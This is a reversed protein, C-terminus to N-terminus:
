DGYPTSDHALGRIMEDWTPVRWGTRALFRSADLSRDCVLGDDKTLTVGWGLANNVRRLLEFKDIPESAVHWVGHLDPQQELLWAVLEAVSVTTFGSYIARTFGKATRGRQTRFWELLSAGPALERGIISTRLTLCGPGEVEGVLKTRGYLDEPDPVDNESYMGKRGSFVCDSSFHVLRAGTARCLEALRHPFLANVFIAPVAATAEPKQKTIGLCNLAVEPRADAFARVVSDPDEAHVGGVLRAGGFVPDYAAQTRWAAPDGRLTATVDHSRALCQVLKHGLMGSGGLVLIRM